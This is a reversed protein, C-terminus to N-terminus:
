ESIIAIFLDVLKPDFQTGAHKKLEAIAESQPLAARYPRDSTMADFADVIAIIRCALPIETEKLGLPYGKGDWREHHKLIWDAIPVLDPITEAISKGIEPHRKMEEYEEPTLKAPKNLIRDPIGVKGLDHFRGLLKLDNVTHDPLKLAAALQVALQQMRDAHSGTVFDRAELAKVLGEIMASRASQGRHLKERSMNNDAEAFIENISKTHERVAFGTSLSLPVTPNAANYSAVEAAIRQCITELGASSCRYVILAFEDGGIRFVGLDEEILDAVAQCISNAAAVLVTNGAEHGLTDNVMKLGDIDCLIIGEASLALTNLEEEFYARNYLGTLPDHCSLYDLAQNAQRLEVTRREVRRELKAQAIKLEHESAKLQQQTAALSSLMSNFTSALQTLEDRGTAPMRASLDGSAEITTMIRTFKQLRSLITKELLILILIVFLLGIVLLSLCQYLLTHHAQQYIDRPMTVKFLLAPKGSIDPIIGYGAISYEDSIAVVQGADLSRESPYGLQAAQELAAFELPLQIVNQMHQATITDLKRGIIITGHIASSGENPIVPRAAFLAPGEPLRVIGKKSDKPSFCWSKPPHETILRLISPSVPIERHNALDFSRAFIVRGSTDTYAIFNINFSTFTSASLNLRIFEPDRTELFHCSDDWTGYDQAISDLETIGMDLTNIVRAINQRVAAEELSSFGELLIAKSSFYLIVLLFLLTTGIAILTKYRLTM